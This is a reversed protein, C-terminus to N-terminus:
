MGSTIFPVASDRMGGDSIVEWDGQFTFRRQILGHINISFAYQIGSFSVFM